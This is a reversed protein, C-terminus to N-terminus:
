VEGPAMIRILVSGHTEQLIPLICELQERSLQTHKMGRLWEIEEHDHNLGDVGNQRVYRGVQFRDPHAM